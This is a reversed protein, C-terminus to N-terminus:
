ENGAVKGEDLQKLFRAVRWGDFGFTNKQLETRGTTADPRSRQSLAMLPKLKVLTEDPKPLKQDKKLKIRRRFEANALSILVGNEASGELGNQPTDWDIQGFDGPQELPLAFLKSYQERLHYLFSANFNPDGDRRNEDSGFLEVVTQLSHDNAPDTVRCVSSWSASWVANLGSGQVIGIALSDRGTAEKAVDDLLHHAQKLIQRLPYKWHAYVISASITASDKANTDNFAERYKSELKCAVELAFKAPLIAMVDDGGAYVTRGFVNDASVISDVQSTFQNLCKSLEGPGDLQQLLKGMSDGDMLLLAYYPIPSKPCDNSGSLKYIARLQSSLDSRQKDNLPWDKSSSLSETFWAPGDISAWPINALTASEKESQSIGTASKSYQQAADRSEPNLSTLWPTAALFATSPWRVNALDRCGLENSNRPFLRKILAIACLRESDGFDLSAARNAIAKWFRGQETKGNHGSLEQLNGMLSCKVGGEENMTVDRFNKRAATLRGIRKETSQPQGIVWSVEWFGDVQRDWILRTDNGFQEAADALYNRWVIAAIRKWANTFANKAANAALVALESSDFEIEFRNPIGGIHYLKSRVQCRDEESRYPIIVLGNFEIAEAAALAEEALYSLMWSGCWLDRTRRAQAVFGQVPGITFSLHYKQTESHAM